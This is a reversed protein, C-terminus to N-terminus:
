LPAPRTRLEDCYALLAEVETSKDFTADAGLDECRRRMARDVHNSLVVMRQHPARVRCSALVRLGSGEALTLDVIALDWGERQSILWSVASTETTAHGVISMGDGSSTLMEALAKRFRDDDEIVFVRFTVAQETIFKM